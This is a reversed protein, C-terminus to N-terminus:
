GHTGGFNEAQELGEIPEIEGLIINCLHTSQEVARASMDRQIIGKLEIAATKVKQSSLVEPSWAQDGSKRGTDNNEIPTVEM